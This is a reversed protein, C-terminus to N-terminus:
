GSPKHFTPLEVCDCTTTQQQFLAIHAGSYKRWLHDKYHQQLKFDLYINTNMRATRCFNSDECLCYRCSFTELKQLVARIFVLM